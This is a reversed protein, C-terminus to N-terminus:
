PRSGLTVQATNSHGSRVYTMTVKDGPKKANVAGILTNPSLITQGDFATIVDGDKLGANAAPSGGKVSAVQAGSGTTPAEASVGLYAHEVKGTSLLQTVVSRVTDSSIAFGVGDSGGGESEIQSNIGIVRGLVNLLPGGSNGHNIAADTQIAGSISYANDSSITRNLASVIGSTVTEPLGFPAGIAIVGDGVQVTASDGLTLPHLKSAPADVKLVALDTSSDHGVDTAPYESGDAFRVKISHGGQVVHYNTVIHGATDFAFGSGLVEEKQKQAGLPTNTSTTTTDTIEVVGQYTRQYIEHIGLDQAIAATSSAAVPQQVVTTTTQGNGTSAAYAGAGVGAAVLALAAILIPTRTRIM